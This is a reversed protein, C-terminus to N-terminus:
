LRVWEQSRGILPLGVYGRIELHNKDKMRLQCHYIKGNHPDLVYGDSWSSDNHKKMDWMIRMGVIPKNHFDGECVDCVRKPEEGEKVAFIREIRTELTGEPTESIDVWSRKKGTEDDITVWRGVPSLAQETSAVAISEMSFALLLCLVSLLHRM